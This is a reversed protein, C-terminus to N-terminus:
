SCTTSRTCSCLIFAFGSSPIWNPAPPSVACSSSVDIALGYSIGHMVVIVPKECKEIATIPEQMELIHRRLMTARRAPDENGSRSIAGTESAASVDLGATFARDGNGTLVVARIDTDHSIRNFISGLSWFMQETFANLKKPRDFEVQVVYEAPFTVNFYEFGSYDQPM